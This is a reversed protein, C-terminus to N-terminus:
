QMWPINKMCNNCPFLNMRPLSFHFELGHRDNGADREQRQPEAIEKEPRDDDAAPLDLGGPAHDQQGAADAAEIEAQREDKEQGAPRGDRGGARGQAGARNRDGKQQGPGPDVLEARTM